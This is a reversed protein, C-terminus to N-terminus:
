SKKNLFRSADVQKEVTSRPVQVDWVSLVIFGGVAAFFALFVLSVVLKYGM